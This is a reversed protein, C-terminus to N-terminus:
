FPLDDEPDYTPPEEKKEQRSHKQQGSHPQAGNPASSSSGLMILENVIIDTWYRTEGHEGQTQSYEVRGEVYLRDGQNVWQEVIDGLNGFATCRHWDTREQKQGTRDQFTRNTALSWKVVKTGSPTMRVEPTVGVNGILMIKNLGRAM